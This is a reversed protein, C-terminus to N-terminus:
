LTDDVSVYSGEACRCIRRVLAHVGLILLFLASIGGAFLLVALLTHYFVM